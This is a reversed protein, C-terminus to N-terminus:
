RARRPHRHLTPVTSASPPTSATTTQNASAKSPPVPLHRVTSAAEGAHLNDASYQRRQQSRCGFQRGAQRSRCQEDGTDPADPVPPLIRTRSTAAKPSSKSREPWKGLDDNKSSCRDRRSVVLDPQRCQPCVLMGGPRRADHGSDRSWAEEASGVAGYLSCRDFGRISACATELRLSSFIFSESLAAGFNGSGVCHACCIVSIACSLSFSTRSKRAEWGWPPPM